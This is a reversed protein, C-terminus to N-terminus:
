DLCPRCQDTHYLFTMNHWPKDAELSLGNALAGRAPQFVTTYICYGETARVSIARKGRSIRVREHTGQFFGMAVSKLYNLIIKKKMKFITCQTSM